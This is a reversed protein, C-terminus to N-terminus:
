DAGGSMRRVTERRADEWTWDPHQSRLMATMLDRASRWMGNAITLREAPTKARLVEAMRDDMVEIRRPDLTM